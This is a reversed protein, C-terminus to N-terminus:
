TLSSATSMNLEHVPTGVRVRRHRRAWLSHEPAVRELGAPDVDNGHVYVGYHLHPGTTLGSAGTKGLPDGLRVVGGNRVTVTDLHFYATHVGQGHDVVVTRGTLVDNTM